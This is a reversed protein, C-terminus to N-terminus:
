CDAAIRVFLPARACRNRHNDGPNTTLMTLAICAPAVHGGTRALAKNPPVPAPRPLAM